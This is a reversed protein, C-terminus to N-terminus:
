HFLQKVLHGYQGLLVSASADVCQDGCYLRSVRGAHFHLSFAHLSLEGRATRAFLDWWWDCGKWHPIALM